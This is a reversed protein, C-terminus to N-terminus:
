TLRTLRVWWYSWPSLYIFGRQYRFVTNILLWLLFHSSLALFPLDAWGQQYAIIATGGITFQWFLKWRGALGDASRYKVKKYDDYFGILGYGLTMYAVVLRCWQGFRVVSPLRFRGALLILIGGMTPTGQKAM